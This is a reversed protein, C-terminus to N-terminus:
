MFILNLQGDLGVIGGGIDAILIVIGLYLM